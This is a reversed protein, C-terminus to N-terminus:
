VPRMPELRDGPQVRRGNVFDQWGMLRKGAPQLAHIELSGESTAVTLVPTLTGPPETTGHPVATATSIIIEERVDNATAYWCRAGPWPWMARCRRAIQEAPEDFRLYGDTRSLKPARSAQSEDQPEGPSHPDDALLRLTADLADCAIGSLRDHLEGATETPGIMTERQVLVPGADMRGVLRFSSVGTKREGALIAAAIPGAGRFRPLLSAHLNVCEMRFAERLPAALKQGFAVVIGLDAKLAAIREVFAATNVDESREVPLEHELAKRAVPTSVERQGRGAPRDPQTVVLAIEHESNILWWLSPVAFEGSGFYVVRM